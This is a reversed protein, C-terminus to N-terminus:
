DSLERSHARLYPCPVRPCPANMLFACIVDCADLYVELFKFFPQVVYIGKQGIRTRKVKFLKQVCMVVVYRSVIVAAVKKVARAPTTATMLRATKRKPM